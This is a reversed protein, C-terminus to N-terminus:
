PDSDLTQLPKSQSPERHVHLFQVADAIVYKGETGETSIRIWGRNGVEFRFEGLSRFLRRHKPVEQQNIRLLTEGDAHHVLVPTNTARRANYCHSLRVEYRGERPIMPTYTVSCTGKNAKRDHLYGIGVYPPTHTSYQWKGILKAQTEDVIIGPLTSDAVVFRVLEPRDVDGPLHVNAIADPHPKTQRFGDDDAPVVTSALCGVVSVLILCHRHQRNM